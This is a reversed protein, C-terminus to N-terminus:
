GGDFFFFFFQWYLELSAGCRSGLLTLSLVINFVHVFALVFIFPWMFLFVLLSPLPLRRLVDNTHKLSPSLQPPPATSHSLLSSFRLCFSPEGGEVVCGKSFFFSLSVFSAERGGEGKEPNKNATESISSPMRM